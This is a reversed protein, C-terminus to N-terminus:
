HGVTSNMIKKKKIFTSNMIKAGPGAGGFALAHGELGSKIEQVAHVSWTAGCARKNLRTNSPLIDLAGTAGM